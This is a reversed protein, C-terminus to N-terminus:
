SNYSGQTPYVRGPEPNWNFPLLSDLSYPYPEPIPIPLPYKPGVVGGGVAAELQEDTLEVTNIENTMLRGKQIGM